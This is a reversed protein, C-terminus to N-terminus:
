RYDNLNSVLEIYVKNTYDINFHTAHKMLDEVAETNSDNIAAFLAVM